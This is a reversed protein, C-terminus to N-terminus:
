SKDEDIIEYEAEISSDNNHSHKKSTLMKKNMLKEVLSRIILFLAIWLIIKGFMVKNYM